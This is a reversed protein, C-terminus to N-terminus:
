MLTEIEVIKQTYKQERDPHMLILEKYVSIAKEFNKQNFYIGALTESAITKGQFEPVPQDNKSDENEKVKIKAKTLREALEDLRDEFCFFSEEEFLTEEERMFAPRKASSLSNREALIKDIRNSYIEFAKPSSILNTGKELNEKAQYENGAYALALAYIIYASPYDPYIKLGTELIDIASLYNGHSMEHYAVRTFLPSSKDFEYILKINDVSLNKLVPSM